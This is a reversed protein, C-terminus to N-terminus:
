GASPKATAGCCPDADHRGVSWPVVGLRRAVDTRADADM